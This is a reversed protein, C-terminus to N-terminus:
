KELKINIGNINTTLEFSFNEWRPWKQPKEGQWSMGWPEKPGFMGKDLEGNKNSDQFCRIGYTGATIGTFSFQLTGGSEAPSLVLTQIGTFPIKAIEEDVLYVYLSEEGEYAITGSISYLEQANLSLCFIIAIFISTVIKKQNM